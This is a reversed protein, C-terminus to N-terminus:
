TRPIGQLSCVLHLDRPEITIRKAHCAVDQSDNLLKVLFAEAAEQLVLHATRQINIVTDSSDHVYERFLRRMPLKPILLDVSKQQRRIERLAVTGPRFRHPKRPKKGSATVKVAAKTAGLRGPTKAKRTIKKKIAIKKKPSKAPINKESAPVESNTPAEEM